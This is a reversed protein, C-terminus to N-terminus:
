AAGAAQQGATDGPSYLSLRPFSAAHFSLHVFPSRDFVSLQWSGCVLFLASGIPKVGLRRHAALSERNFASIRSATWRYGRARLFVNTTEWLQVFLRSLRFEPAVFVDYDWALDAACLRFLCRVEDEHYESEQIWIFGAVREDRTAVFCHAGASFRRALVEPPRPISALVPDGATAKRFVTKSPGKRPTLPEPAVPQAFFLYRILRVRGGSFRELVRSILYLPGDLWGLHALRDFVGAMM